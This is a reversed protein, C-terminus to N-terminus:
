LEFWRRLADALEAAVPTKLMTFHDSSPVNSFGGGFNIQSRLDAELAGRYVDGAAM